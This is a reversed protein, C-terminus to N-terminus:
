LNDTDHSMKEIKSIGGGQLRLPRLGVPPNTPDIPELGSRISERNRSEQTADRQSGAAFIIGNQVLPTDRNDELWRDWFDKPVGLTLAFGTQAIIPYEPLNGDQIDQMSLRSGNLRVEKGTFQAIKFTRLAGYIEETRDVMDFIRLIIGNPMKCGVTVTEGTSAPTRPREYPSKNYVPPWIQPGKNTSEPAKQESM